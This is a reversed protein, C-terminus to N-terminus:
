SSPAPPTPSTPSTCAATSAAPSTGSSGPTWPASSSRAPKPASACDPSTTSSGPSRPAPSTPPSRCAPRAAAATRAPTAASSRASRRRHPHGALRHRQPRAQRHAKDWLLTTERQNTIGIALIDDRSAGAKVMAGAVVEQVNNWIEAADHEVWGPKPFIQEHEKQDVAVIRGDRDFIICRSSTTGQDIAAIFPGTHTDTMTRELVDNDHHSDAPIRRRTEDSGSPLTTSSDPSSAASSRASSPSGPTAGTPAARTPAPAAHVIRPGLDRAPNIAYGTPGGLSLGISVVVLSTILVGLTGLGNGADNLGQTLIALVLVFTRSSRPSSTRPPTASRPAPPSSASCPAPRRGRPRRRGRAPQRRRGHPGPVPRLLRGLRPDRRPPRRGDPSAIYLPVENWPVNGQVALGLTVAPNLHAGSIGAPMYAATLVAFGWGFAIALWGANQSKSKKLTVAACVGAGLLILVATGLVEGLFIDSNSM